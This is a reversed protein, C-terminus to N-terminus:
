LGWQMLKKNAIIDMYSNAWSNAPKQVLVSRLAMQRYKADIASNFSTIIKDLYELFIKKWHFTSFIVRLLFIWISKEKSGQAALVVWFSSNM